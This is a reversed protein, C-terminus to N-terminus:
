VELRLRRVGAREIDCASQAAAWYPRVAHMGPHQLRDLAAQLVLGEGGCVGTLSNLQCCSGLGRGPGVFSVHVIVRKSVAPAAM